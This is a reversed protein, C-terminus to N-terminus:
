FKWHLWRKLMVVAGDREVELIEAEQEQSDVASLQVSAYRDSEQSGSEDENREVLSRVIKQILFEVKGEGSSSTEFWRAGIETAVSQATEEDV